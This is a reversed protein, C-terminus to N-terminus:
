EAKGSANLRSIIENIRDAIEATTADSSLKKLAKMGNRAGTIMEISQKVPELARALEPSLGFTNITPKRYKDAM